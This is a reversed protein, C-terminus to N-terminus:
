GCPKLEEQHENGSLQAIRLSEVLALAEHHANWTESKEIFAEEIADPDKLDTPYLNQLLIEELVLFVKRSPPAIWVMPAHITRVGEETALVMSGRLLINTHAFKHRHGVVLAGAPIVGQRIYLGPGFIHEVPCEVQPLALMSAELREIKEAEALQHFEAVTLM